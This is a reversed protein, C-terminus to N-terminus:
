TIFLSLPRNLRYVYVYYDQLGRLYDNSVHAALKRIEM